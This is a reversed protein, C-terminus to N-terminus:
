SDDEEEHAAEARFKKHKLTKLQMADAESLVFEIGQLYDMLQAAMNSTPDKDVAAKIKPLMKNAQEVTIGKKEVQKKMFVKVTDPEERHVWLPRYTEFMLAQGKALELIFVRDGHMGVVM